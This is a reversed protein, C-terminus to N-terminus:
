FSFASLSTRLPNTVFPSDLRVSIRQETIDDLLISNIRFEGVRPTSLILRLDTIAFTIPSLDGRWCFLAFLVITTSCVLIAAKFIDSASGSSYFSAVAIATAILFPLGCIYCLKRAKSNKHWPTVHSWLLREGSLLFDEIRVSPLM